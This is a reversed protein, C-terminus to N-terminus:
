STRSTIVLFIPSILPLTMDKCPMIDPAMLVMDGSSIDLAKSSFGSKKESIRLNRGACLTASTSLRSWSKMRMTMSLMSGSVMADTILAEASHTGCTSLCMSGLTIASIVLLEEFHICFTRPPNSGAAMAEMVLALRLNM